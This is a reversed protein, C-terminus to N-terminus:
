QVKYDNDLQQIRDKVYSLEDTIVVKKGINELDAKFEHKLTVLSSELKSITARMHAFQRQRRPSFNDAKECELVKKPTGLHNDQFLIDSPSEAVQDLVPEKEQKSGSDFEDPKEENGSPKVGSIVPANSAPSYLSIFVELATYNGQIM